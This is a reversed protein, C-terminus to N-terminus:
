ISKYMNRVAEESFSGILGSQFIYEDDGMLKVVRFDFSQKEDMLKEFIFGSDHEEVIKSFYRGSKAIALQDAKVKGINTTTAKSKLIQLSYDSNKSDDITLEKMLGYDFSKIEASEPANVNIAFGHKMLSVSPYNAKDSKCSFALIAVIFLTYLKNM